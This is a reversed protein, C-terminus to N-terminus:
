KVLFAYATTQHYEEHPRLEVPPFEPHSPTCPFHQTEFCVAQHDVFPKGNKGVGSGGLSNATYVQMGPQTTYVKMEIGSVESYVTAALELMGNSKDLVFNHDYGRAMVIQADDSELGERLAREGRFDFPTGEVDLLRGTPCTQENGECFQCADIHVIHDHVTGGDQGDLNFYSHNTFNVITPADTSAIYDMVLSGSDTLTYTVTVELNGPFGDEGNPSKYKLELRQQEDEGHGEKLIRGQFVRHGLVGHLHNPGNNAELAYTKGDVTFCANEIRNAYRGIFAGMGADGQEYEELTRYGLVVDRLAGNKDPVCLETVACGYEIIVARMGAANELTYSYVEKGDSTRAYYNGTISM